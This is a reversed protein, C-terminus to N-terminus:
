VWDSRAWFAGRLSCPFVHENRRRRSSRPRGIEALLQRPPRTARHDSGSERNRLSRPDHFASSWGTNSSAKRCRHAAARSRLLDVTPVQLAGVTRTDLHRCSRPSSRCHRRVPDVTRVVAKVSQGMEDDPNRLRGCRAGQPSHHAHRGGGASLHQCRRLHDHSATPRHPVSVRKNDVYGIDGVTGGAVHTAAVGGDQCQRKPVEFEMANEFYIQGPEGPPLEGGDDGIIHPRALFRVDSQDPTPGGMGRCPHFCIGAGESSSYFEDM